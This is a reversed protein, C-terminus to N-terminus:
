AADFGCTMACIHATIAAHFRITVKKGSWTLTVTFPPVTATLGNTPPVPLKM